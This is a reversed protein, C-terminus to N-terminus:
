YRALTLRLIIYIMYYFGLVPLSLEFIVTIYKFGNALNEPLNALLLSLIIYNLFTDLIMLLSPLKLIVLINHLVTALVMLLSALMPDVKVHLGTTLTAVLSAIM